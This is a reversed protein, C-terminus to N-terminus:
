DWAPATAGAVAWVAFTAAPTTVHTGEVRAGGEVVVPAAADLEVGLDVTVASRTALVVLVGEPAERAFAIADASAHLWRLGGEALGPHQSRLAGLRAYLALPEAAAALDDWPLPTRSEEGDAGTLGFEDGQWIVPLGPMTM